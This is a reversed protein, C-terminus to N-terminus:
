SGIQGGPINAPNCQINPWALGGSGEPSTKSGIAWLFTSLILFSGLVIAIGQVAKWLMQRGKKFQDESGGATLIYYGGILLVIPAFVFLALTMGFYVFNQSTEVLDCLSKCPDSFSGDGNPKTNCSLLPGWYGGPFLSIEKAFGVAPLLLTSFIM